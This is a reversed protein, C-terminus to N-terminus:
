DGGGVTTPEKCVVSGAEDLLVLSAIAGELSEDEVLLAAKGEDDVAKPQTISSGPVNPKTRLDARLNDVAPHIRM